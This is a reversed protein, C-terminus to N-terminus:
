GAESAPAVSAATEPATSPAAEPAASAAAEPTLSAPATSPTPHASRATPTLLLRRRPVASLEADLPDASLRSLARTRSEASPFSALWVLVRDTRVPLAPFGNPTPDTRWVAVPAGLVRELGDALGESLSDVALIEAVLRDTRPPDSADGREVPPGPPRVPRLQLVDDSDIMMANAEAANRKWVPGGYFATLASVRAPHGAFGRMWVFADPDSEDRFLGGITM